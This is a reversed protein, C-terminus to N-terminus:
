ARKGSRIASEFEKLRAVQRHNPAAQWRKQQVQQLADRAHMGDYVLVACTLLVSRGVGHECHILVQGGTKLRENVWASGELLQEISLPCTDPTPLHLLEIKERKLAEPDDSYESRTDVVHTVGLQALSHIDDPHIRGGVALHSTVWSLNLADPLPIHLRKALREGPSNEPFLAAAVRTWSRYLLRVMGTSVWRVPSFQLHPRITEDVLPPDTQVPQTIESSLPTEETEEEALPPKKSEFTM